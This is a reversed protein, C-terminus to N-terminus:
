IYIWKVRSLDLHELCSNVYNINEFNNSYVDFYHLYKTECYIFTFVNIIDMSVFTVTLDIVKMGYM